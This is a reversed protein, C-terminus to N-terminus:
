ATPVVTGKVAADLSDISAKLPDLAAPEVGGGKAVEEELKTFEAQAEALKAELDTKLTSFSTTLEEVTAMLDEQNNHILGVQNQLAHLEQRLRDHDGFM